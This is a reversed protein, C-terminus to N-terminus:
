RQSSYMPRQHHSKQYRHVIDTIVGATGNAVCNGSATPGRDPCLTSAPPEPQRRQQRRPRGQLSGPLYISGPDLAWRQIHASAMLLVSKTEDFIDMVPKHDSLIIFLRGYVYQHFHKVAFVIALAEEDPQSYKHEAVSLSHFAYAIPRKSGDEMLHPLVAGVGLPSADAALIIKKKPNYHVLLDSSQLAKVKEFASQQIKGWQWPANKCLLNYLPAATTALDPLFKGYYNVIGLFSRLEAVGTPKPAKAVTVIKSKTPQLRDRSIKHGLYKVEKLM